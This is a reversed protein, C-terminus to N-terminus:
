IARFVPREIGAVMRGINGHRRISAGETMGCARM